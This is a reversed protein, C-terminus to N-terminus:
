SALPLPLWPFSLWRERREREESAVLERKRASLRGIASLCLFVRLLLCGLHKTVIVRICSPMLRAFESQFHLNCIEDQFFEQLSLSSFFVLMFVVCLQRLNSFSRMFSAQHHIKLAQHLWTCPRNPIDLLINNHPLVCKSLVTCSCVMIQLCNNAPWM